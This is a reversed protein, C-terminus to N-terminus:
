VFLFDLYTWYEVDFSIYSCTKGYKKTDTIDYSNYIPLLISKTRPFMDKGHQALRLKHVFTRAIYAGCKSINNITVYTNLILNPM